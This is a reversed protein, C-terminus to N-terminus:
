GASVIPEVLMATRRYHEALRESARDAERGLAADMIEAHERIVDREPAEGYRGLLAPCRYRETETYFREALDLLRESRCHGILARHFRRHAAELADRDSERQTPADALRRSKLGLAHFAAVIEAEWTDDGMAISRRLAECEILIRTEVADWMETASVPAVSFGRLAIATVLRESQLRSLAERLPSFSLGYRARLMELRLPQRPELVGRVIDRRLRRYATEALTLGEMPAEDETAAESQMTGGM